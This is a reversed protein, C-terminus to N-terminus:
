PNNRFVNSKTVPEFVEVSLIYFAFALCDCFSFRPEKFRFSYNGGSPCLVPVSIM